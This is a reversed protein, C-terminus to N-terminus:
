PRLRRALTAAPMGAEAAVERLVEGATATYDNPGTYARFYTRFGPCLTVEGGGHLTARRHAADPAGCECTVLREHVM